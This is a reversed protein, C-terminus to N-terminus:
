YRPTLQCVGLLLHTARTVTLQLSFYRPINERSDAAASANAPIASRSSVTRSTHSLSIVIRALLHLETTAIRRGKRLATSKQLRLSHIVEIRRSCQVARMDVQTRPSAQLLAVQLALLCSEM